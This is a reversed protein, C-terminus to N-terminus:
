ACPIICLYSQCGAGVVTGRWVERSPAVVFVVGLAHSTRMEGCARPSRYPAFPAVPLRPLIRELDRRVRAAPTFRYRAEAIDESCQLILTPITVKSLDEHQRRYLHRGGVGKCDVQGIFARQKQGTHGNIIM